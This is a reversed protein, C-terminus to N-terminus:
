VRCVPYAAAQQTQVMMHTHVSLPRARICHTSQLKHSSTEPRRHASAPHQCVATNHDLLVLFNNEIKLGVKRTPLLSGLSHGANSYLGDDYVGPM